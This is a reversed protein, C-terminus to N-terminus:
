KPLKGKVGYYQLKLFYICDFILVVLMFWFLGWSLYYPWDWQTALAEEYTMRGNPISLGSVNWNVVESGWTEGFNPALVFLLITIPFTVWGLWRVYRERMILAALMTM